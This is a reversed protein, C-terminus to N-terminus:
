APAAAPRSQRSPLVIRVVTGTQPSSDLSVEGGHAEVVRKVTPLGLGTGRHKTTFFPEFVKDRLAEPVGPGHDAVTITCRDREPIVTIEVVGHGSMAQGANVFLNAFVFQLQDPDVDLGLGEPAALKVDVGQMAPDMRFTAIVNSLFVGVNVLSPRLERPRAFTLLDEIVTNLGDIRDVIDHSLSVGDSRAPLESAILQVGNRIGSLPNRVEHAVVAAFEGLAALAAQDRLRQEQQKRDTIDYRIAMYQWPKGRADLFPVITTDVWYISGDKARNRIEGRWVGGNAITVWLNRIFEASHFHSNLIRHDQGILEERSYRSIECFKDNVFKIRGPVDTIAVIAAQDLAQKIDELARLSATTRDDSGRYMRVGVATIWLVVMSLGRDILVLRADFGPHFWATSLAVLLTALTALQLALRADKVALGMLMVPVYLLPVATASRWHVDAVFVLALLTLSVLTARSQLSSVFGRSASPPIM